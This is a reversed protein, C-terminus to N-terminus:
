CLTSHKDATKFKVASSRLFFHNRAVFVTVIVRVRDYSMQM